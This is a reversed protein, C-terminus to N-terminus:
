MIARDHPSDAGLATEVDNYCFRCYAGYAGQAAECGHTGYPNGDECTEDCVRGTTGDASTFDCGEECTETTTPIERDKDSGAYIDVPMVTECRSPPGHLHRLSRTLLRPTSHM